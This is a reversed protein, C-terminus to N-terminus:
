AIRLGGTPFRGTAENALPSDLYVPFNEYGPLLKEEKIQRLFYLIEQTRGVAFSPIVVNGGREFASRLVDALARPYDARAKEHVRDGYTSEIVLVDAEAVPQPDRLIPQNTNGVDGSFVIKREM